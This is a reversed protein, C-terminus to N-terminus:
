IVKVLEIRISGRGYEEGSSGCETAHRSLYWGEPLEWATRSLPFGCGCVHSNNNSYDLCYNSRPGRLKRINVGEKLGTFTVSLNGHFQSTAIAKM